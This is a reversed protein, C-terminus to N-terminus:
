LKEGKQLRKKFELTKEKLQEDRLKEFEPELQNIKEVKKQAKKLYKKNEDGFIKELISM